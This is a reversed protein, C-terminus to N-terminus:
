AKPPAVADPNPARSFWRNSAPRYLLIIAAAAISLRIVTWVSQSGSALFVARQYASSANTAVFFLFGLLQLATVTIRAWNQGLYTACVLGLLLLLPIAFALQTALASKHILIAVLPRHFVVLGEVGLVLDVIQLVASLTVQFPRPADTSM